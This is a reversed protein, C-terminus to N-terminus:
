ELARVRNTSCIYHTIKFVPMNKRFFIVPKAFFIIGAKWTRIVGYLIYGAHGEM